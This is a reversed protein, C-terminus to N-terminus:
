TQVGWGRASPMEEWVVPDGNNDVLMTQCRVCKIVQGSYWSPTVVQTEHDETDEYTGPSVEHIRISTRQTEFSEYEYRFQESEEGFIMDATPATSDFPTVRLEYPKAIRTDVTDWADGMWKLGTMADGDNLHWWTSPGWLKFRTTQLSAPAAAVGSIAGPRRMLRYVMDRLLNIEGGQKRTTELWANMRAHGVDEWRTNPSFRIPLIGSM